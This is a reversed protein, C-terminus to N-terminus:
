ARVPVVLSRDRGIWDGFRLAIQTKGSGSLGTLIVLPKTALSAVFARVVDDHRPGFSVHASRLAAAFQSHVAVLDLQPTVTEMRAAKSTVADARFPRAQQSVSLRVANVVTDPYRQDNFEVDETAAVESFRFRYPYVDDPWVRDQAEFPDSTVEAEVVSRALGRLEAATSVRPYGRPAPTQDSALHHVFLVRDGVRIERFWDRKAGWVGRKRAIDFNRGSEKGVYVCWCSGNAQTQQPAAAEATAEM